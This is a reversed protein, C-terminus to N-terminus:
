ARLVSEADSEGTPAERSETMLTNTRLAESVKVPVMELLARLPIPAASEGTAVRPLAVMRPNRAVTPGDPATARVIPFSRAADRVETPVTRRPTALPTAEETMGEPTADRSLALINAADTVKVPPRDVILDLVSARAAENEGVATRAKETAM